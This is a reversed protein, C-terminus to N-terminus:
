MKSNALVKVLKSPDDTGVVKFGMNIYFRMPLEENVTFVVFDYSPFSSVVTKNIIQSSIFYGLNKFGILAALKGLFPLQNIGDYIGVYKFNHNNDISKLSTWCKMLNIRDRYENWVSLDGSEIMIVTNDSMKMELITEVFSNIRRREKELDNLRNEKKDHLFIIEVRGKLLNLVEKLTLIRETLDNKGGGKLKIKKISDINMEDLTTTLKGWVKDSIDYDHSIIPSGDKSFVVDCEIGNVGIDLAKNFASKTNELYDSGNGRHAVTIFESHPNIEIIFNLLPAILAKNIFIFPTRIPRLSDILSSKM